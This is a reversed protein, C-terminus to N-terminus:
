ATIIEGLTMETGIEEGGLVRAVVDPAMGPAIRVRAVGGALAALAANLKAQM